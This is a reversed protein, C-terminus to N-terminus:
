WRSRRGRVWCFLYNAPIRASKVWIEAGRYVGIARNNFNVPDLQGDARQVNPAAIIRADLYAAFGTFGKVAQEQAQNIEVVPMGAGYHEIVTDILADLNAAAFATSALFHTHTAPNFSEGNPGVPMEAGDANVFAKVSSSSTISWTTSM